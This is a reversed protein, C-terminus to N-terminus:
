SKFEYNSVQSSLIHDVKDTLNNTIIRNIQRVITKALADEKQPAEPKEISTPFNHRFCIYIKCNIM